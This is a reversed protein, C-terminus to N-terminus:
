ITYYIKKIINKNINFLLSISNIADKSSIGNKLLLELKSKIDDLNIENSNKINGEVVLVMEGILEKKNNILTELDTRIFEEHIKTLERAITIKRNGFCTYIDNITDQIRHPSEYFVLTFGVEKLSNLEEIRESQKSKLFGYFIFHSCNLGSAILANIFANPGSIPTIVIDNKIAEKVLISGPDSICPYGADSMYGVIKGDLIDNIIKLSTEKENHEHCSICKKKIGILGLLKSTNRTDECAIYDCQSITDKMRSSVESLNGIPSPILFLSGKMSNKLNKLNM